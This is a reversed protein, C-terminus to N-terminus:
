FFTYGNKIKQSAKELNAKQTKLGELSRQETYCGIASVIAGCANLITLPFSHEVTGLTWLSCAATGLAFCNRHIRVTGIRTTVEGLNQTIEEKTM